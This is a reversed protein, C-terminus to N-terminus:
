VSSWLVIQGASAVGSSHWSQLHSLTEIVELQAQRVSLINRWLCFTLELLRMAFSLSWKCTRDAHCRQGGLMDSVCRITGPYVSGVPASLIYPPVHSLPEAESGHSYSKPVWPSKATINGSATRRRTSLASSSSADYESSLASEEGSSRGPSFYQSLWDPLWSSSERESKPKDGSEPTFSTRQCEKALMARIAALNKEGEDDSQTVSLESLDAPEGLRFRCM